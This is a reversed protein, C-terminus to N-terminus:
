KPFFFNLLDNVIMGKKFNFKQVNKMSMLCGRSLIQDCVNEPILTRSTIPGEQLRVPDVDKLEYPNPNKSASKAIKRDAEMRRIILDMLDSRTKITKLGPKKYKYAM